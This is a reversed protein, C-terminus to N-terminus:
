ILIQPPPLVPSWPKKKLSEELSELPCCLKPVMVRLGCWSPSFAYSTFLLANLPPPPLALIKLILFLSGGLDEGWVPGKGEGRAMSGLLLGKPLYSCSEFLGSLFILLSNLPPKFIGKTPFFPASAELVPQKGYFAHAWYINTSPTALIGWTEQIDQPEIMSFYCTVRVKSFAISKELKQESQVLSDM